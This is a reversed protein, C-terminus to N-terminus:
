PVDRIEALPIEQGTRIMRIAWNIREHRLVQRRGKDRLLMSKLEVIEDIGAPGQLKALALLPVFLEGDSELYARRLANAVHEGESLAVLARAAENRARTLSPVRYLDDCLLSILFPVARESDIRALAQPVLHAKSPDIQGFVHRLPQVARPDGLEGLRRIALELEDPTGEELLELWPEVDSGLDITLEIEHGCSRLRQAIAPAPVKEALARLSRSAGGLAVGPLRDLIEESRPGLRHKSEIEQKIRAIVCPSARPDHREVLERAAYLGAELSSAESCVELLGKRSEEGPIEVLAQSADLALVSDGTALRTLLPVAELSRLRGLARVILVREQEVDGAREWQRLLAKEAQEGGILGLTWIARIRETRREERGKGLIEVLKRIAREDRLYGLGEVATERVGQDDDDLGALLAGTARPAGIRALAILAFRRDLASPRKAWRLLFDVASDDCITGLARLGAIRSPEARKPIEQILLPVAAPGIAGAIFDVATANQDFKLRAYTSRMARLLAGPDGALALAYVAEM